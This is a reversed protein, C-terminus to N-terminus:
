SSSRYSPLASRQRVGEQTAEIRLASQKGAGPFLLVPAGREQGGTGIMLGTMQLSSQPKILPLPSLGREARGGTGTLIPACMACVDPAEINQRM